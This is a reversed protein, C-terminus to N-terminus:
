VVTITEHIAARAPEKSGHLSKEEGIPAEVLWAYKERERAKVLWVSAVGQQLLHDEVRVGGM